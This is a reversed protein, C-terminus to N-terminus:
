IVPCSMVHCIQIIVIRHSHISCLSRAGKGISSKVEWKNSFIHKSDGKIELKHEPKSDAKNKM